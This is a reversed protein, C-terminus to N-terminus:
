PATARRSYQLVIWKTLSDSVVLASDGAATTINAGGPLVLVTASHTLTLVGDFIVRRQIGAQSPVGFSTITTTGTIHTLNGNTANLDVLAASVIPTGMAQNLRGKFNLNIASDDLVQAQASTAVFALALLLLKKM